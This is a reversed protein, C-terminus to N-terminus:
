SKRLSAVIPRAVSKLTEFVGDGSSAVALTAPWNPHPIELELEEATSLDPLDRKNWQRAGPIVNIDLGNLALDTALNEFSEINAEFRASQSDAVFIVGDAGKCIMRRSEDYFVPGPVTHLHFRVKFGQVAELSPPVFDFFLSRETETALATM